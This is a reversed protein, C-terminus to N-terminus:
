YTTSKWNGVSASVLQANPPAQITVTGFCVLYGPKSNQTSAAIPSDPSANAIPRRSNVTLGDSNQPSLLVRAAIQSSQDSTTAIGHTPNGYMDLMSTSTFRRDSIADQGPAHAVPSPREVSGHRQHDSTRQIESEKGDRSHCKQTQQSSEVIDDMSLGRLPLMLGLSPMAPKYQYGRYKNCANISPRRSGPTRINRSTM